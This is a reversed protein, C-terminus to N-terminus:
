SPVFMPNPNWLWSWCLRGPHVCVHRPRKLTLKNGMEKEGMHDPLSSAVRGAGAWTRVTLRRSNKAARRRERASSIVVRQKASDRQNM